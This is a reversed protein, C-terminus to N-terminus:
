RITPYTVRVLEGTLPSEFTWSGDGNEKAVHTALPIKGLGGPLDVVFQPLCLGSVPGRLQKFLAIAEGLPVRFHNTGKALDPYHLYYPKVGNCIASRFLQTLSEVSDNIGRLLVSQMLLPFGNEVLLNLAQVTEPTFEEHSNIHPSIWIRQPVSKFLAILEPTIRSPLASPIRTHFRIMKIHPIAAINELLMKLANDTLTLPDGGTLIVEQIEPHESIYALARFTDQPTLNYRSDSVKERRFCFRCYMACLFTPTLLVRDPYRHVVGPLPSKANDGIPDELEEPLFVLEEKTPIVQKALPPSLNKLFHQPIRLDFHQQAEEIASLNELAILNESLLQKPEILGQSLDKAWTKQPTPSTM